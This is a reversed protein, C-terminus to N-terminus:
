RQPLTALGRGGLRGVHSARQSFRVPRPSSPKPPHGTDAAESAGARPFHGQLRGQVEDLHQALQVVVVVVFVGGLVGCVVLVLVL